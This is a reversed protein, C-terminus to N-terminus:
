GHGRITCHLPQIGFRRGSASFCGIADAITGLARQEEVRDFYQSSVERARM